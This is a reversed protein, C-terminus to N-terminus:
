RRHLRGERHRRHRKAGRRRREFRRSEVRDGHAIWGLFELLGGPAPQGEAVPPATLGFGALWDFMATPDAYYHYYNYFARGRFSIIAFHVLTMVFM